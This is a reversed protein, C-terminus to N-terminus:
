LDANAIGAPAITRLDQHEVMVSVKDSIKAEAADASGPAASGGAGSAAGPFGAVSVGGGSFSALVGGSTRSDIQRM